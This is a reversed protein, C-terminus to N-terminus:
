SLELLETLPRVLRLRKMEHLITATSNRAASIAQRYDGPRSDFNEPPMTDNKDQKARPVKAPTSLAAMARKSGEILTLRQNPQVTTEAAALAEDEGYGMSVLGAALRPLYSPDTSTVQYLPSKRSKVKLAMNDLLGTLSTTSAIDDFFALAEMDGRHLAELAPQMLQLENRYVSGLLTTTITESGDLMARAQTSAFLKIAVDIIGQSYQYMTTLLPETLTVPNRVWQNQWLIQIFEQWEDIDGAAVSAPFREWPRISHGSSRRAQRFDLSLVKAAKSTGIFLIPVQLDNCASVLETMLTQGGKTSNALNQVEDCILIGVFHRNLLRAVSRMLTDAGPRGRVAYDQYYNAGPILRDLKQLIGHALGKISSGDSPMEIHLHPVQYVHLDPHYIVEDIHALYRKVLTTKGLGSIGILSTSLQPTRTTASQRFAAGTRDKEHISQYIKTHASTRPARGVYGSRILSDLARAVEIDKSMPVMFNQLEKLMHMRDHTPWARQEPTFEPLLTLAEILEEDSMTPPLAEILPNGKFQPLRSPTYAAEKCGPSLIDMNNIAM